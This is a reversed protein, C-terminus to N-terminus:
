VPKRTDAPQRVPDFFKRLQGPIRVFQIATLPLVIPQVPANNNHSLRLAQGISDSHSKLGHSVYLINKFKKM